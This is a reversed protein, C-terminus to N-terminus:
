DDLDQSERPLDLHVVTAQRVVQALAMGREHAIEELRERQGPSYKVWVPRTFRRRLPRELEVTQSM